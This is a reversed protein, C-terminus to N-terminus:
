RGWMYTGDSRHFNYDSEDGGSETESDEDSLEIESVDDWTVREVLPKVWGEYRSDYVCCSRVVLSKLAIGDRRDYLVGLVGENPDPYIDLNSLTLSQLNPAPIRVSEATRVYTVWCPRQPKVV